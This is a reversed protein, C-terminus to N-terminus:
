FHVTLFVVLVPGGLGRFDNTPCKLAIKKRHDKACNPENEFVPAKEASDLSHISGKSPGQISGKITRVDSM